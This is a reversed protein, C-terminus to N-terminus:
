PTAKAAGAIKVQVFKALFSIVWSHRPAIARIAWPKKHIKSIGHFRPIDFQLNWWELYEKEQKTTVDILCQTIHSLNRRVEHITNALWKFRGNIPHDENYSLLAPGPDGVWGVELKRYNQGDALFKEVESIYWDRSFIVPGLNKDMEKIIMKQSELFQSLEKWRPRCDWHLTNSRLPGAYDRHLSHEGCALGSELTNSIRSPNM